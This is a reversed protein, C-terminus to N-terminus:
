KDGEGGAPGVGEEGTRGWNGVAFDVIRLSSFFSLLLFKSSTDLIWMLHSFNNCTWLMRSRNLEWYFLYTYLLSYNREVRWGKKLRDIDDKRIFEQGILLNNLQHLLPM